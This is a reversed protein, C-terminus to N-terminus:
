DNNRQECSRRPTVQCSVHDLPSGAASRGFLSAVLLTVRHRVQRRVDKSGLLGSVLLLLGANVRRGRSYALTARRYLSFALDKRLANVRQFVPQNARSLRYEERSPEPEGRRRSLSCARIWGTLESMERAKLFSGSNGHIRYRILHEPQVLIEGGAEAIRTWLDVDEAPWFQPRYGGAKLVADRRMLVGPHFIGGVLGDELADQVSKPSTMAPQSYGLIRGQPDIFTALCSTVVLDPNERVFAIQRELRNPEMLDDADLRAIWKGNALGIAHNLSHGMGWNDHAVVKIRPDRVSYLRLIELTQDTSGDDIALLEFDGFSQRVISLISEDIYRETNYAPLIVTLFTM